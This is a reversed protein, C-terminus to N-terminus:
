LKVGCEPCCKCNYVTLYGEQTDNKNSSYERFFQGKEVMSAWQVAYFRIIHECEEKMEKEKKEKVKAWM